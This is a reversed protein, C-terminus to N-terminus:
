HDRFDCSYRFYNSLCLNLKLKQMFKITSCLLVFCEDNHYSIIEKVKETSIEFGPESPPALFDSVKFCEGMLSWNLGEEGPQIFVLILYLYIQHGLPRPTLCRAPTHDMSIATYVHLSHTCAPWPICHM